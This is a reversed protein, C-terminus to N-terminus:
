KTMCVDGIRGLFMGIAGISVATFHVSCIEDKNLAGFKDERKVVKHALEESTVTDKVTEYDYFFCGASPHQWSVLDDIMLPDYFMDYGFLGCVSVAFNPLTVAM